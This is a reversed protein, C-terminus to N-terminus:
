PTTEYILIASYEPIKIHSYIYIYKHSKKISGECVTKMLNNGAADIVTQYKFVAILFVPYYVRVFSHNINIMLGSM